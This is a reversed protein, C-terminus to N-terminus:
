QFDRDLLADVFKKAQAKKSVFRPPPYTTRTGGNLLVESLGRLAVGQGAAPMKFFVLAIDVTKQAFM